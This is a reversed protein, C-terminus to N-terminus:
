TVGQGTKNLGIRGLMNVVYDTAVVKSSSVIIIGEALARTRGDLDLLVKGVVPSWSEVVLMLVGALELKDRTCAPSDVIQMTALGVLVKNLKRRTEAHDSTGRILSRLVRGVVVCEVIMAEAGVVRLRQFEGFLITGVPNADLDHELRAPIALVSRAGVELVMDRVREAGVFSAFARVGVRDAKHGDEELLEGVRGLELVVGASEDQRSAVVYSVGAMSVELVTPIGGWVRDELLGDIGARICSSIDPFALDQHVM